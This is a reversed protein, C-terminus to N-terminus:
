KLFEIKKDLPCVVDNYQAFEKSPVLWHAIPLTNDKNTKPKSFFAFELSMDKTEHMVLIAPSINSPLVIDEENTQPWSDPWINSYCFFVGNIDSPHVGGIDIRNAQRLEELTTADGAPSTKEQKNIIKRVERLFTEPEGSRAGSFIVDYNLKRVHEERIIYENPIKFSANKAFKITLNGNKDFSATQRFSYATQCGFVFVIALIFLRTKM